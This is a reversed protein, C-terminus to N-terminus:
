FNINITQSLCDASSKGVYISFEGSELRYDGNNDYFGLNNKPLNFEIIQSEGPELSIKKYGKLEKVPRVISAVRDRVYLQVIEEGQRKGTNTIEVGIALLDNKETVNLNTYNFSTYSLGFGFPYLVDNNVDIYKSTFKSKGGPRGTNPHNYYVPCQGTVRPISVSLKGSPNTLGFIIDSVANGMQIGLHWTEVIADINEAEWELALPRGNMVIAVLPKNSTKVMKLLKKQDGPLEINSRSAAEGSMNVTEGVVAVIVDGFDLAHKLEEENIPETLGGTQFYRINDSNQKLGDLISVCDEEKWSISWAGVVESSKDALEGIISIKQERNLPLINNENKLLVISKKASELALQIHESPIPDMRDELNVYPNDFLGLWMKTSLIREVAENIIREDLEGTKVLQSLYSSYIGTGMDMDIGANVAQLGADQDNIAIGHSVCERIGNADSVVFGSFGYERKLIDRLIESNVTCPVGNLDNFAAMVTAAGENVAAKFPALYVNHLLSTSMSTTNYDRGSEAAGYAVFHKLCAAVYNMPSSTDGQLGKVKAKAFESVLFPDEGPGESVRGWRADRSVDIMPAFHWNIGQLRSEKAAMRATRLFLDSDFSCAEALAIPFVTRFGHIVDLGIILPIGLRSEEMAIKQLENAKKADQLMISGVRGLRIDEEHYDQEASEMIKTFEGQSIRGDTLMEILEEFPVDFGGVISVSAQNMQGIKEELSMMSVIEQVKNKQVQTLSVM